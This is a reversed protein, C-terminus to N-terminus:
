RWKKLIKENLVWLFIENHQIYLLLGYILAASIIIAIMGILSGLQIFIIGKTLFVYVSMILASIVIQSLGKFDHIGPLIKRILIIDLSTIIIEALVTSVAAGNYGILRILIMNLSFNFLAGIIIIISFAKERDFPLLIQIGYINSLGIAILLPALIRLTLASHYQVGFVLPIIENSLLILGLTAPISLLFVLSISKQLYKKIGEIDGQEKLQSIRALLVAGASTVIPLIIRVLRNAVFYQGVQEENQIYGIMVNDLNTYVLVALQSFFFWGVYKFHSTLNLAQGKIASFSVSKKNRYIMLLNFVVDTILIILAYNYLDEGNKVFILILPLNFIRSIVLAKSIVDFREMGQFFWNINFLSSFILLGLIFALKTNGNVLQPVNFILLIYIFGSILVTILRLTEIEFFTKSRAKLDNKVRSIERNAYLPIGLGAVVIFYNIISRVFNVKGLNEPGLVRSIYPVTIMPFAIMVVNTFINYLTNKTVSNRKEQKEM